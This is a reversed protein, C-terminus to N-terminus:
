QHVDTMQLIGFQLCLVLLVFTSNYGSAVNHFIHGLRRLVVFAIVRGDSTVSLPTLGIHFTSRQACPPKSTNSFQVLFFDSMVDSSCLFLTLTVRQHWTMPEDLMRQLLTFVGGAPDARSSCVTCGYVSCMCRLVTDACARLADCARPELIATDDKHAQFSDAM